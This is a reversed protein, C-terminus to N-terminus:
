DETQPDVATMCATVYGCTPRAQGIVDVLNLTDIKCVSAVYYLLIILLSFEMKTSTFDKEEGFPKHNQM